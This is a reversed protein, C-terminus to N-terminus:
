KYRDYLCLSSCVCVCVCVCVCLDSIYRSFKLHYSIFSIRLHQVGVQQVLKVPLGRSSDPNQPEGHMLMCVMDNSVLM